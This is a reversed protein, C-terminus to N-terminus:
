GRMIVAKQSRFSGRWRRSGTDPATGSWTFTVSRKLNKAFFASAKKLFENEEELDKIRKKLARPEADEQHFNGSGVFPETPHEKFRSMWTYLTNVNIGLERAVQAAPIGSQVRKCAEEKFEISYTQAM